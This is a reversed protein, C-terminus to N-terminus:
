ISNAAIREFTRPSRWHSDSWQLRTATTACLWPAAMAQLTM